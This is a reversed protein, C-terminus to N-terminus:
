GHLLKRVSDHTGIGHAVLFGVAAEDTAPPLRAVGSAKVTAVLSTAPSLLPLSLSSGADGAAATALRAVTCKSALLSALRRM